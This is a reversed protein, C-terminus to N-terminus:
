EDSIPTSPAPPLSPAAVPVVITRNTGTERAQQQFMVKTVESRLSQFENLLTGVKIEDKISAIILQPMAELTQKLVSISNTNAEIKSSNAEIRESHDHMGDNVLSQYSKFDFGQAKFQGTQQEIASTQKQLESKLGGLGDANEKAIKALQTNNDILQQAMRLVKPMVRISVYAVGGLVIFSPFILMGVFLFRNIEDPTM